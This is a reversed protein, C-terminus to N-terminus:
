FRMKWSLDDIKNEIQNLRACILITGAIVFWNDGIDKVLESDLVKILLDKM